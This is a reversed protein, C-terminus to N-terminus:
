RTAATTTGSLDALFSRVRAANVGLDSQGVRSVSRMDIISGRGNDASRVRLVVDDKFRFLSITETAELRGAAPDVAAVDWGRAEALREADAIVTAVPKNVRVSRVDPYADQHIQIWRQQPTLGSYQSDEGGPIADWNDARLTLTEFMPPNALDTSVDHIAPVSFGKAAVSLMYGSYLLSAALGVWLMPRKLSAGKRKAIIILIIALLVGVIAAIVSFMLQQIGMRFDWLGMGSGFAAFLGWIASGVGLVLVVWAAYDRSRTPAPAPAVPDIAPETIPDTM